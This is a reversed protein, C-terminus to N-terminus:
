VPELIATSARNTIKPGLANSPFLSAQPSIESTTVGLLGPPEAQSLPREQMNKKYQREPRLAREDKTRNKAIAIM